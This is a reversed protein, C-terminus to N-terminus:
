TPRHGKRYWLLGGLLLAGLYVGLAAVWAVLQGTRHVPPDYRLAVLHRGAPVPVGRLAYDTRLVPAPADSVTATWGEPYYVESFVLLRPRDTRVEYVIERPSFRQFVVSLVSASDAATVGASDRVTTPPGDYYDLDLGDPAPGLVLATRRPDFAPDRLRAAVADASELVDVSDAFFARPLARPNEQVLLGTEPDQYVPRMGPLPQGAVVYRAALLDLGVPNLAGEPFLVEDLFGQYVGLKAAHYGGVNEYFFASRGDSTPTAALNLVRFHGPGGAATVQEQLFTDFPYRPVAAEVGARTRLAPDAENFYRRAVGGLDVLVLLALGGQMAWAPVTGRRFLLMLAAAAALVLLSRVADGRLADAREARAEEMVSAVTQGVRPDDATLGAQGAQEVVAAELQVREGPRELSLLSPGLLALLGLFALGVGAGTWVWRTKRAEADETAERRVLWYAGYGALVALALAVAALWTEPARFSSFLPFFRFMPRNVLALHEGLAFATMLVAGVAIGTTARRRVGFAGFVALLLVVPGVYHPGATFPKPGWYTQGAGGYAGAVALTLLEGVGQSWAMATEWAMGGDAAGVAGGGRTSFAKYSWVALYPQAAMALGLAAGVALVLTAVGFRRAEGMRLATVGESIWWVGVLFTAYYTIQIHGARLNVAVAIAFLLALLVDRMWTAERPRYLVAAVALLLWPAYALAVFKTNHGAVLLVPLYTTLGYGLAGIVAPLVTRTLLFILAYAGGLLVLLHSLPWLGAERLLRPVTDFGPVKLPYHILYGPMGAFVNPAWLADQDTRAEHDLMAQAAGRWQVVDGGVLTRGGFTTPATLWLAAVLLLGLGIAHRAGLPLRDWATNERGIPNSGRVRSRERWPRNGELAAPQRRKGAPRGSTSKAM